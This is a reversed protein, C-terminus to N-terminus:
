TKEALELVFAGGKRRVYYPINIINRARTRPPLLNKQGDSPRHSDATGRVRETLMKPVGHLGLSAPKM